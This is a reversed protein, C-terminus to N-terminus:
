ESKQGRAIRLAEALSEEEEDIKTVGGSVIFKMMDGGRVEDLVQVQDRNVVYLIGSLNYSLPAYVAVKDKIGLDDLDEQTIFGLKFVGSGKGFEFMVAKDFKKKNSIFAGFFDKLSSYIDKVVPTKELLLDFIHLLPQLIVMSGIFGVLTIIAVMAAIGLGPYYFHFIREFFINLKSDLWDFISFIAYFTVFVPALLLLGQLFYSVIRGFGTRFWARTRDM